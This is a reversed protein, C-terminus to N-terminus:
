GRQVYPPVPHVPTSLFIAAHSETAPKLTSLSAGPGGSRFVEM